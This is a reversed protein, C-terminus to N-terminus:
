CEIEKRRFHTIAFTNRAWKAGLITDSKNYIAASRNKLNDSWDSRMPLKNVAIIITLKLKKGSYLCAIV